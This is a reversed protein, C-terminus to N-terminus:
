GVLGSEGFKSMYVKMDIVYNTQDTFILYFCSSSQPLIHTPDSILQKFGHTITLSDIQTGRLAAFDESWWEPSRTNLDGLIVTFQFKSCLINSLLDELRSLFLGECIAHVTIVMCTIHICITNRTCLFKYM